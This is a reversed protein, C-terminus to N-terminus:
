LIIKGKIDSVAQIQEKTFNGPNSGAWVEGGVYKPFYDLTELNNVSISLFGDVSEPFGKMTSCGMTGAHFCGKVVNFKIYDPLNGIHNEFGIFGEVDITMDDNFIIKDIDFKGHNELWKKVRAKWGINMAEKPDLGREFNYENIFHARM